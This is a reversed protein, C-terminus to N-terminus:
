GPPASTAPRRPPPSTSKRHPRPPPPPPSGTARPGPHSFWRWPALLFLAAGGLVILLPLGVDGTVLYLVGVNMVFHFAIAPWLSGTREYLLCMAIGGLALVPVLNWATGGYIPHVAGFLGGSLLAAWFVPLKGRLGGYLFGRFFLEEGVPALLVVALVLDVKDLTSAGGVARVPINPTVHGAAAVYIAALIAYSIRAVLVWGVAARAPTSRLGLDAARPRTGFRSALAFAVALLLAVFLGEGVTARFPFDLPDLVLVLPLVAVLGIALAVVPTWWPWRGFGPPADSPPPEFRSAFAAEPPAEVMANTVAPHISM